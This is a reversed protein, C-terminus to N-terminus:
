SGSPKLPSLPIGYMTIGRYISIHTYVSVAIYIYIHKPICRYVFVDRYM